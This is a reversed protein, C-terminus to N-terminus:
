TGRVALAILGILAIGGVIHLPKIGGSEVPTGNSTFTVNGSQAAQQARKAALLNNVAIKQKLADKSATDGLGTIYSM